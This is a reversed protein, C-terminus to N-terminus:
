REVRNLEVSVLKLVEWGVRVEQGALDEAIEGGTLENEDVVCHVEIEEGEPVTEGDVYCIDPDDASDITICRYERPYRRKLQTVRDVRGTHM